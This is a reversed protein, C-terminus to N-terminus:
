IYNDALSFFPDFKFFNVSKFGMVETSCDFIKFLEEEEINEQRKRNKRSEDNLGYNLRFHLLDRPFEENLDFDIKDNFLRDFNCAALSNLADDKRELTKLLKENLEPPPYLLADFLEETSQDSPTIRKARSPEM